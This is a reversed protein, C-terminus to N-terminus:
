PQKAGFRGRYEAMVEVGDLLVATGTGVAEIRRDLEALFESDTSPDFPGSPVRADFLNKEEDTMALYGELREAVAESM